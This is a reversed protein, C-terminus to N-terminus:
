GTLTSLAISDMHQEVVASVAANGLATPKSYAMTMDIRKSEMYVTVNAKATM